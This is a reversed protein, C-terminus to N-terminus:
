ALQLTLIHTIGIEQQACGSTVVPHGHIPGTGHAPLGQPQRQPNITGGQAPTRAARAALFFDGPHDRLSDLERHVLYLDARGTVPVMQEGCGGGISRTLKEWAPPPLLSCTNLNTGNIFSSVFCHGFLFCRRLRPALARLRLCPLLSPPRDDEQHDNQCEHGYRTAKKSIGIGLVLHGLRLVQDAVLNGGDVRTIAGRLQRAEDRRLAVTGLNTELINRVVHFAGDQRCLVTLKPGVGTEGESTEAASHQALEGTIGASATARGDRLLVDLVGEHTILVGVHALNALKDIGDLHSVFPRLFVDEVGVEVRDVKSAIGVADLRCRIGVEVLIGLVERHLFTGQEGPDDLGRRHKIRPYVPLAGFRAPVVHEVPQHLGSYQIGRLAVGHHERFRTIRGLVGGIGLCRTGIPVNLVLDDVLQGADTNGLILDCGATQLDSRRDVHVDLLGGDVRDIRLKIGQLIIGTRGGHGDIWAGASHAAVEAPMVCRAPVVGVRRQLGTRYELHHGQGRRQLLSNAKIRRIGRLRILQGTRLNDGVHIRAATAAGNRLSQLLGVVGGEQTELIIQLVLGLVGGVHRVCEANGLGQGADIVGQGLM